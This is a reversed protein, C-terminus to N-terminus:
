IPERSSRTYPPIKLLVPLTGPVPSYIVFTDAGLNPCTDVSSLNMGPEMADGMGAAQRAIAGARSNGTAFNDVVTSHDNPSARSSRVHATAPAAIQTRRNLFRKSTLDLRVSALLQGAERPKQIVVRDVGLVSEM